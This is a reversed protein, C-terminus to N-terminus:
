SPLQTADSVAHLENETPDVLELWVNSLSLSKVEEPQVTRETNNGLNIARIM